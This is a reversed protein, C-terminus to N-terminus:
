ALWRVIMAPAHGGAGITIWAMIMNKKLMGKQWFEALNVPVVANAM